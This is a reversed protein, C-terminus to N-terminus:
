DGNKFPNLHKLIEDEFRFVAIIKKKDKEEVPIFISFFELHQEFVLDLGANYFNM